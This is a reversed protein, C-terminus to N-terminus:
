AILLSFFSNFIVSFSIKNIHSANISHHFSKATILVQTSHISVLQGLSVFFIIFFNNDLYFFLHFFCKNCSYSTM